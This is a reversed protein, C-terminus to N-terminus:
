DEERGGLNSPNEVVNLTRSLLGLSALKAETSNVAPKDPIQCTSLHMGGVVGVCGSCHEKIYISELPILLQKVDKINGARHKGGYM